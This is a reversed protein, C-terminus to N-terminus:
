VMRLADRMLWWLLRPHRRAQSLCYPLYAKGYPVYVRVPVNEREALALSARQPLGYLLELECTTGAARLYQIADCALPADHSAIAVHPARGALRKVVKM